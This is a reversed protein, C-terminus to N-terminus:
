PCKPVMYFKGLRIVIKSKAVAFIMLYMTFYHQERLYCELESHESQIVNFLVSMKYSVHM